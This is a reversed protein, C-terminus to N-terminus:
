QTFIDVGFATNLKSAPTFLDREFLWFFGTRRHGFSLGFAANGYFWPGGSDGGELNHGKTQVLSEIVYGEDDTLTNNLSHIEDCTFGTTIGFKCVNAGVVPNAVSNVDRTKGTDYYFTPLPTLTGKTSYALDGNSGRHIGKIDVQTRSADETVHNM